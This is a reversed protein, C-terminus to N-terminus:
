FSESFKPVEDEFEIGAQTMFYTDTETINEVRITRETIDGEDARVKVGTIPDAGLVGINQSQSVIAVEIINISCEFGDLIQFNQPIEINKILVNELEYLNGIYKIPKKSQRLELLKEALVFKDKSINIVLRIETPMYAINDVVARLDEIPKETINNNFIVSESIDFLELGGLNVM